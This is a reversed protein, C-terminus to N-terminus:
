GLLGGTLEGEIRLGGDAEVTVSTLRFPLSVDTGVLVLDRGAGTGTELHLVLAGTETVALRGSAEAGGLRVGVRDSGTLTVSTPRIGLVAQVGDAVLVQAATAGVTSTAVIPGGTGALTVTKLILGKPGVQPLSVGDLRGAVRGAAGGIIAVDALDLAVADVSAGRFTAHTARVQVRDARLGLLDWPPDSGVRVVTDAAELGAASVGATLVGAAVAPLLVYVLLVLVAGGLLAVYMLGRM